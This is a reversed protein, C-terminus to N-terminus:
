QGAEKQTTVSNRQLASETGTVFLDPTGGESPTGEMKGTFM